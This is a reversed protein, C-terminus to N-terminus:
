GKMARAVLWIGGSSIILGPVLGWLFDMWGQGTVFVDRSGVYSLGLDDSLMFITDSLFAYLMGFVVLIVGFTLLQYSVMKVREYNYIASLTLACNKKTIRNTKPNIEAFRFFIM